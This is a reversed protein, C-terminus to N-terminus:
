STHPFATSRAFDLIFPDMPSIFKPNLSHKSKQIIPAHQFLKQPNPLNFRKPHGLVRQNSEGKPLRITICDENTVLQSLSSVM